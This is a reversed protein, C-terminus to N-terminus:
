NTHKILKMFNHIIDKEKPIDNYGNTNLIAFYYDYDNIYDLRCIEKFEGNSDRFLM